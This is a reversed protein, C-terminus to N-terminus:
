KMHTDTHSKQRAHKYVAIAQREFDGISHLYIETTTHNEYSLPKSFVLNGNIINEYKLLPPNSYSSMSKPESHLIALVPPSSKVNPQ